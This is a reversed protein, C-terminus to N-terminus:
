AIITASRIRLSIVHFAALFRRLQDLGSGVGVGHPAGATVTLMPTADKGSCAESVSANTSAASTAM